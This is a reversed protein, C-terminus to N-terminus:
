DKVLGPMQRAKSKDFPKAMVIDDFLQDGVQFQRIGIQEYGAKKYFAVARWNEHYTGLLIRSAQCDLAHAEFANNLQKAVGSGQFKSFLYIRKLEIDNAELPVPLDPPTSVVYGVPAGTESYLALWC